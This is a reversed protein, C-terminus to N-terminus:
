RQSEFSCVCPVKIDLEYENMGREVTWGTGDCKICPVNIEDRNTKTDYVIREIKMRLNSGFEDYLERPFHLSVIFIEDKMRELLCFPDDDYSTLYCFVKDGLNPDGDIISFKWKATHRKKVWEAVAFDFTIHAEYLPRM